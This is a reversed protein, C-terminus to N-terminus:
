EGLWEGTFSVAAPGTMFVTGDEKYDIHLTGLYLQVDVSRGTVGNLFCAVAVGCCGTGCALTAGAGREWTRMKVTKDDVVQVFNVNTGKPFSLHKEIKRGLVPLDIEDLNEVFVTTHPVGTLVSTIAYDKGDIHLPENVVRGPAGLMPIESRELFAKGMDITVLKVTHDEITLKPKMIGAMTEVMFETKDMIHHEYVYKAFCRIGNGCMEAESGDNNIIRMRVDAVTSPVIVILGDAGVGTHRNCIKQALPAFDKNQGQKDEIFVFDNGLGHMKVFKM